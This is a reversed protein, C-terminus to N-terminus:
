DYVWFLSINMFKQYIIINCMFMAQTAYLSNFIFNLEPWAIANHFFRQTSDILFPQDDLVYTSCPEPIM